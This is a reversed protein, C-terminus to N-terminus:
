RRFSKRFEPCCKLFTETPIVNQSVNKYIFTDKWDIGNDKKYQEKVSKMIKSAKNRQGGKSMEDMGFLKVLDDKNLLAKYEIIVKM